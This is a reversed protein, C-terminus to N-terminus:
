VYEVVNNRPPCCWTDRYKTDRAFNRAGSRTRFFGGVKKWGSFRDYRQVFYYGSTALMVRYNM